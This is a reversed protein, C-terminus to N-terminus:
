NKERAGSIEKLYAEIIANAAGMYQADLETVSELSFAEELDWGCTCEMVADIRPKRHLDKLWDSFETRTRHKFTVTVEAFGGAIPVEVKASFTPDAKLKLKAM